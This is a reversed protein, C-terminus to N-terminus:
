LQLETKDNVIISPFKTAPQRMGRRLVTMQALCLRAGHVLCITASLAFGLSDLKGAQLLHVCFSLSPFIETGFLVKPPHKLVQSPVEFSPLVALANKRFGSIAEDIVSISSIRILFSWTTSVVM